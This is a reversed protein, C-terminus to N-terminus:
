VAISIINGKELSIRAYERSGEKSSLQEANTSQLM